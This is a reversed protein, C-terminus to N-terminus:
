SHPEERPPVPLAKGLQKVGGDDELHERLEKVLGKIERYTQPRQVGPALTPHEIFAELREEIADLQAKTQNDQAIAPAATACGCLALIWLRQLSKPEVIV